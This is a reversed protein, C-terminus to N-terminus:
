RSFLIKKIEGGPDKLTKEEILAIGIIAGAAIIGAFLLLIVYKMMM